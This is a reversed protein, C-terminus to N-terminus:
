VKRITLGTKEELFSAFINSGGATFGSKSLIIGHKSDLFLAYFHDNESIAYLNRYHYYSSTAQNESTFGENDFEFHCSQMGRTLMRKSTYNQFPYWFIGVFLLISGYLYAFSPLIGEKQAIQQLYFGGALGLFGLIVCLARYLRKKERDVTQGALRNLANLSNQNYNTDNIFQM